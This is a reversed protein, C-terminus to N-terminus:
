GGTQKMGCIDTPPFIQVTRRGTSNNIYNNKISSAFDPQM